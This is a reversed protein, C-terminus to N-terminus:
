EADYGWERLVAEIDDVNEFAAKMAAERLDVKYVDEGLREEIDSQIRKEEQYTETLYHLQFTHDRAQKVGTRSYIFPLGSSASNTSATETEPSEDVESEGATISEDADDEEEDSSSDADAFPDSGSGSKMGNPM